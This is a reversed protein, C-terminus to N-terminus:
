ICFGLFAASIGLIATIFYYFIATYLNKNSLQIVENMYTSFTTYGAIISSLIIFATSSGVLNRTLLGLLFSGTVNITITSFPIEFKMFLRNFLETLLYRIVSGVAAGVGVLCVYKLM